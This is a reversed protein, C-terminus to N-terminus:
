RRRRARLGAIMEDADIGEVEGRVMEMARRHAEADLADDDFDETDDLNDLLVEALYDQVERPQSRLESELEEVTLGM